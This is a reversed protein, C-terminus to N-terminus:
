VAPPVDGFLMELQLFCMGPSNECLFVHYVGGGSM